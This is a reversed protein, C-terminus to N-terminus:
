TTRAKSCKSWTKLRRSVTAKQVGKMEPTLSPIFLAGIQKHVETAAFNIASM